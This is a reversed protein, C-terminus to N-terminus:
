GVPVMPGRQGKSQLHRMMFIWFGLLLLFPSANILVSPWGTSDGEEIEISVGKAQMASLEERYDAPLFTRVTSGDKRVITVASATSGGRIKASVVSGTDIDRLFESYSVRQMRTGNSRVTGFMLVAVAILVGWFMLSKMNSSM